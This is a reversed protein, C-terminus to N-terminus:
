SWVVFHSTSKLLPCCSYNWSKQGSFPLLYLPLDIALSSKTRCWLNQFEIRRVNSSNTLYWFLCMQRVQYELALDASHAYTEYTNYDDSTLWIQFFIYDYKATRICSQCFSLFVYLFILAVSHILCFITYLNQNRLSMPRTPKQFTHSTLINSFMQHSSEQLSQDASIISFMQHTSESLSCSGYINPAQVEILSTDSLYIERNRQSLHTSSNAYKLTKLIVAEM